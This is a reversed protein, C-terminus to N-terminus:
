KLEKLIRSIPEAQNLVFFHFGPVRAARLERCQALAQEVGIGLTAEPDDKFKELRGLLAAPITAGCVETFKRIQKLGTVPMIGPIIPIKIGIKRCREVFNFYHLNDFFLQTIIYEAGAEVKEKLYQVDKELSPSERHGEPYGAAGLCFVSKRKKIYAILEKAFHFGDSPPIFKEQGEPPDGRLALINEVGIRELEELQQLISSRTAAVCTLHAVPEIQFRQKIEKTWFFTKERTTGMAGCTVSVFDPSFQKLRSIVEYLNEEQKPTKPPFFEFSLTSGKNLADIVKM